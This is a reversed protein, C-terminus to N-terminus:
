AYIGGALLTRNSVFAEFVQGRKQGDAAISYKTEVKDIDFPSFYDRIFTCWTNTMLFPIGANTLDWLYVRLREYFDGGDGEPTYDKFVKKGGDGDSYPPDILVFPNSSKSLMGEPSNYTDFQECFVGRCFKNLHDRALQLQKYNVAMCKDGMPTNCQNNKNVRYLGNYGGYIIYYYRAARQITSHIDEFNGVRDWARMDYYLGKSQDTEIWLLESELRDYDSMLVEYFNILEPSADFIYFPTEKSFSLAASGCFPEVIHSTNEPIYDEIQGLLKRKSGVYKIPSLQLNCGRTQSYTKQSCVRKV